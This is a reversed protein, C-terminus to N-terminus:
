YPGNWIASGPNTDIAFYIFNAGTDIWQDGNKYGANSDDTNTPAIGRTYTDSSTYASTLQIGGSYYPQVIPVSTIVGSELRVLLVFGTTGSVVNNEFTCGASLVCIMQASADNTAIPPVTSVPNGPDAAPAVGYIRSQFLQIIEAFGGDVRWFPQTGSCMIQAGFSLVFAASRSQPLTNFIFAPETTGKYDVLMPGVISCLGHVTAGNSIQIKTYIDPPTHIMCLKVVWSVDQMNWAGPPIVIPDGFPLLMDDFYIHKPGAVSLTANYLSQWDGFINNANPQFGPRYVLVAGPLNVGSVTGKVKLNNVSLNCQQNLVIKGNCALTRCGLDALSSSEM